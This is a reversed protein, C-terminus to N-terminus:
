PARRPTFRLSYSAMTKGGRPARFEIGEFTAVVCSKFAEGAIATRPKTIKAKGGEREILIDVGFDGAKDTTEAKAFCAELEGFHPEVSTLIPAKTVADNPGGGIHLGINAVGVPVKPTEAPAPATASPAAAVKESASPLPAPAAPASTDAVAASAVVAASPAASGEAPANKASSAENCAGLALVTLALAVTSRIM